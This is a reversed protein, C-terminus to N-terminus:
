NEREGAQAASEGDSNEYLYPKLIQRAYKPGNVDSFEPIECLRDVAIYHKLPAQSITDFVFVSTLM